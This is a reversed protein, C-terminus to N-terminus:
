IISKGLATLILDVAISADRLSHHGVFPNLEVVDLSTLLNTEAIMELIVHAERLNIGGTVPTSVSSFHVPDIVDLDFSVHIGTTNNKLIKVVKHMINSIGNEDIDNMTFYSIGSQKLIIKEKIDLSRVGLLVINKSKIKKEFLSILSQHGKGLITALSMGHINQTISTEPTNLDGHTDVWLLGIKPNKKAVGSISGISISHDGGITIPIAGQSCSKFTSEALKTCIKSIYHLHSKTTIKERIPVSINGLDKVRYDLKKIRNILRAIRIAEPGMCSGRINAGLDSPVGIINIKKM